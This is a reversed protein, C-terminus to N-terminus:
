YQTCVNGRWPSKRSFKLELHLPDSNIHALLPLRTSLPSTSHLYMGSAHLCSTKCAKQTDENGVVELLTSHMVQHYSTNGPEWLTCYCPAKSVWKSYYQVRQLLCVVELLRIVEATHMHQLMLECMQIYCSLKRSFTGPSECNLLGNERFAPASAPHLLRITHGRGVLHGSM